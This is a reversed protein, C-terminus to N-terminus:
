YRNSLLFYDVKKSLVHIGNTFANDTRHKTFLEIQALVQSTLALSMIFNPHGQACGLNVLHGDALLIIHRGSSLGYRTM